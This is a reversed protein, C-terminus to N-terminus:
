HKGPFDPISEANGVGKDSLFMAAVGFVISGFHAWCGLFSVVDVPCRQAKAPTETRLSHETISVQLVAPPQTCPAPGLYARGM